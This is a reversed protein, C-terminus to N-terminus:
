RIEKLFRKRAISLMGMFIVLWTMFIINILRFILSYQTFSEAILGGIGSLIGLTGLLVAKPFIYRIFGDIDAAASLYVGRRIFIGEPIQKEKKMMVSQYLIVISCVLILVDVANM